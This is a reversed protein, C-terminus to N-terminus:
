DPTVRNVGSKPLYPTTQIVFCDVIPMYPYLMSAWIKVLLDLYDPANTIPLM